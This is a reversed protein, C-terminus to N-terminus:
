PHKSLGKAILVAKGERLLPLTVAIVRRGTTPDVVLDSVQPQGTELTRQIAKLGAVSPLSSGLPHLLNLLQQGAADVLAVTLWRPHAERTLRAQEYFTPLDAPDLDSSAALGKLGALSTVVERDVAV